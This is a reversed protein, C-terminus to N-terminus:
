VNVEEKKKEIKKKAREYLTELKAEWNGISHRSSKGPPSYMSTLDFGNCGVAVSYVNEGRYDIRTVVRVEKIRKLTKGDAEYFYEYKNTKRYEILFNRDEFKFSIYKILDSSLDFSQRGLTESIFRAYHDLGEKREWREPTKLEVLAELDKLSLDEIQTM